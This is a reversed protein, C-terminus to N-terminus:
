SLAFLGELGAPLGTWSFSAIRTSALDLGSGGLDVLWRRAVADLDFAEGVGGGLNGQPPCNQSWALWGDDVNLLM